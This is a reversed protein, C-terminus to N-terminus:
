HIDGEIYFLSSALKKNYKHLIIKLEKFIEDRLFDGLISKIQNVQEQNTLNEVRIQNKLMFEDLINLGQKYFKFEEIKQFPIENRYFSNIVKLGQGIIGQIVFQYTSVFDLINNDKDDYHNSLQPFLSKHIKQEYKIITNQLEAFDFQNSLKSNNRIQKIDNLADSIQLVYFLYDELYRKTKLQEFLEYFWKDINLERALDKISLKQCNTPNIFQQESKIAWNLFINRMVIGNSNGFQDQFEENSLKKNKLFKEILKPDYSGDGKQETGNQTLYQKLKSILQEANRELNLDLMKLQDDLQFIQSIVKKASQFDPSDNNAKDISVKSFMSFSAKFEIQNNQKSSLPKSVWIWTNQCNIQNHLIKSKQLKILAELIQISILILQSKSIALINKEKFFLLDQLNIYENAPFQYTIIDQLYYICVIETNLDEILQFYEQNIDKANHFHYQTLALNEM